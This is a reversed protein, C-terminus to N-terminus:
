SKILSIINKLMKQIDANELAIMSSVAKNGVTQSATVTRMYGNKVANYRVDAFAIVPNGNKDIRKGGTMAQRFGEETYTVPQEDNDFITYESKGTEKNLEKKVTIIHGGVVKGDIVLDIYLISTEGNQLSNIFDTLSIDHMGTREYGFARMVEIHAEATVGYTYNEDLCQKTFAGIKIDTVLALFAAEGAPIGLANGLAYLGCSVINGNNKFMESLLNIAADLQKKDLQSFAKEIVDKDLGSQKVLEDVVANYKKDESKKM